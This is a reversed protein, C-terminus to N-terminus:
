DVDYRVYGEIQEVSDDTMYLKVKVEFYGWTWIKIEFNNGRDKSMRKPQRFTPHLQYIVFKIRELDHLSPAEIFLRVYYYTKSSNPFKSSAVGPERRSVVRFNPGPRM